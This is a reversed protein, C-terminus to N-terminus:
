IVQHLVADADAQLVVDRHLHVAPGGFTRVDEALPDTGLVAGLGLRELVVRDTPLGRGQGAAGFPHLGLPLVSRPHGGVGRLVAVAFLDGPLRLGLDQDGFRDVLHREPTARRWRARAAG